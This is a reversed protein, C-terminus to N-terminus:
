PQAKPLESEILEKNRRLTAAQPHEPFNQLCRDLASLAGHLDQEKHSKKWKAFLEAGVKRDASCGKESLIPLLRLAKARQNTSLLKLALIRAEIYKAENMYKDVTQLVKTPDNSVWFASDKYTQERQEERDMWSEVTDIGLGNSLETPLARLDPLRSRLEAYNGTITANKQMSKLESAIRLQTRELAIQEQKACWLWISDNRNFRRLSDLYPRMIRYDSQTKQFNEVMKIWTHLEKSQPVRHNILRTEMAEMSDLLNFLLAKRALVADILISASDLNGSLEWQKAKQFSENMLEIADKSSAEEQACLAITLFFFIIVSFRLFQKM